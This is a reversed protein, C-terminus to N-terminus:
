ALKSSYLLDVILAYYCLSNLIYCVVNLSIYKFLPVKHVFYRMTTETKVWSLGNFISACPENIYDRICVKNDVYQQYLQQHFLDSPTKM